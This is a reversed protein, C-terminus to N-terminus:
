KLHTTLEGVKKLTFLKFREALESQGIMHRYPWQILGTEIEYVLRAVPPPAERFHTYTARVTEALEANGLVEADTALRCITLYEDMVQWDNKPPMIDIFSPKNDVFLLNDCNADITAALKDQSNEVFYPEHDVALLVIDLIAEVEKKNVQPEALAAWKRLDQIYTHQIDQVTQSLYQKLKDKRESTLLRVKHVMTTTMQTIEEKSVRGKQLAKTLITSDDIKSMEIYFDEGDEPDVITHHGNHDQVGRLSIYIEPAMVNNWFFDEFYFAKRSPFDALDTFFFYEHKYVKIVRQEFFCLTSLLTRVVRDPKGFETLGQELAEAFRM